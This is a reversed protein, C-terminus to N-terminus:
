SSHFFILKFSLDYQAFDEPYLEIRFDEEDTKTEEASITTM